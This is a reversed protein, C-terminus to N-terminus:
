DGLIATAQRHLEKLKSDIPLIHGDRILLFVQNALLTTIQNAKAGLPIHFAAPDMAVEAIARMMNPPPNSIYNAYRQLVPLYAPLRGTAGIYKQMSEAGTVHKMWKWALEPNNSKNLMQISNQNANPARNVPGKPQVALDFRIGAAIAYNIGTMTSALDIACTGNALDRGSGYTALPLLGYVNYLDSFWQIAYAVAPTDLLSRRPNKYNDFLKGGAQAIFAARASMAGGAGLGWRDIKGDGSTDRNIKQASKVLTDWTWDEGLQTPNLLGAEEFYSVNYFTPVLIIDTPLGWMAGNDFSLADRTFQPYNALNIDRDRRIFETLDKLHGDLALIGSHALPFDSTDPPTGGAIMMLLKDLTDGGAVLEVKVGPNAQEFERARAELFSLHEAGHAAAFVHVLKSEALAHPTFLPYLLLFSVLVPVVNRPLKVM